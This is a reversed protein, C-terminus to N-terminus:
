DETVKPRRNESAFAIDPVGPRVVGARGFQSRTNEAQLM